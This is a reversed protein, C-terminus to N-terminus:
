NTISNVLVCQLTYRWGSIGNVCTSLTLIRDSATFEYEKKHISNSCMETAWETFSEITPFQTRIYAYDSKTRYFAIPEFVYAGDLTYVYTKSTAFLEADSFYELGHFMTGDMLNHGYLITNYNNTITPRNRYDAFIAGTVLYKGDWRHDLYFDNDDGQVIVYAIPTGSVLIYGYVDPNVAIYSQLKARMRELEANVQSQNQDNGSSTDVSGDSSLLVDGIDPKLFATGGGTNEDVSIDGGSFINGFIDSFDDKYQDYFKKGQYKSILNYALMASCICFVSVCILLATLRILTRRRNAARKAPDDKSPAIDDESLTDLSNLFRNAAYDTNTPASFTYDDSAARDLAKQEDASAADFAEGDVLDDETLAESKGHNDSAKAGGFINIIDRLKHLKM